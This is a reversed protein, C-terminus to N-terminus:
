SVISEIIKLGLHAALKATICGHDFLPSLEVIDCAILKKSNLVELVFPYINEPSIGCVNPASVGPAYSQSFVDLCISLYVFKKGSIFNALRKKLLNVDQLYFEEALIYEVGYSSATDFLLSTNSFPQVGVCFYNFDKGNTKCYEAMQLFPTGSSGFKGDVLPRLDFHADFNIIAIDSPDFVSSLGQFVGWSTEHGGGFVIPVSSHAVKKVISGLFSQAQELNKEVCKVNGYDIIDSFNSGVALNSLQSRLAFPGTFAGVRGKNRRIGEDCCFGLLSVDLLESNDFSPADVCHVYQFFRQKANLDKRGDWFKSDTKSYNAAYSM